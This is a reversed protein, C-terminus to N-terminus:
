SGGVGGIGSTGGVGGVGGAAGTGGQGSVGGTGGAGAGSAGGVGGATCMTINLSCDANCGLVGNPSMNVTATACTEGNLNLPNPDCQEGSDIVGNGCNAGGGGGDDSAASDGCAVAGCLGAVVMMLRFFKSM